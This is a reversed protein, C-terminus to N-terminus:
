WEIIARSEEGQRKLLTSGRYLKTALRNTAALYARPRSFDLEKKEEEFAYYVLDRTDDDIVCDLSLTQVHHARAEKKKRRKGFLGNVIITDIEVVPTSSFMHDTLRKSITSLGDM